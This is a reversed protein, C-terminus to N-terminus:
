LSFSIGLNVNKPSTANTSGILGSALSAIFDHLCAPIFVTIIVPSWGNVANLTAFSNSNHVLSVSIVVPKSNFSTYSLPSSLKSLYM